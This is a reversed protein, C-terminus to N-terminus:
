LAFILPFFRTMQRGWGGPYCLDPARGATSSRGTPPRAAEKLQRPHRPDSARGATSSRGTPPRAAEKLQWPRRPDPVRGATSGRGTPPRAAEKLQWPRRPDPVRGATSGRGTPLRAAEKLRRPHRPDPARGATSGRRPRGSLWRRRVRPVACARPTPITRSGRSYRFLRCESNKSPPTPLSVSRCLKCCRAAAHDLQTRIPCATLGSLLFPCVVFVGAPISKCIATVVAAM